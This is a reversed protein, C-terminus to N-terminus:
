ANKYRTQANYIAELYGELKDVSKDWSFDQVTKQSSEIFKLRLADDNMLLKVKECIQGVNGVETLFGNEGNKIIDKPGGCDTAVVSCGCAMAELIPLSFGESRSAMIWVKSRCYLRRAQEVSPQHTYRKRPINNPRKSAGFVYQSIGPLEVKLRNLVGLVTQPDKAWARAYITGIGDRQNDELCPYYERLDIGNPIVICSCNSNFTKAAEAIYSAIAVKPLPLSLAEKQLEVKWPTLGRIYQIKPNSRSSLRGLQASCWMGIGVIIEGTIYPIETIDGFNYKEGKFCDLWDRDGQSMLSDLFMKVQQRFTRRLSFMRVQHGREILRNAANVTSRVGGGSGSGPLVFAIKV